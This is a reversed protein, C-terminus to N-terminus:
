RRGRVNEWGHRVADKFNEWAGGRNKTEWERRVDPEIASWDRGGFRADSAVTSGYEYAPAYEEFSRGTSGYNTRYHTRYRERPDSESGTLRGGGVKDVDVETRRVTDTVTESRDNVEKGVRVEEVVRAQKAVVAEEASERVEISGEKFAALDAETAPRDVPRREVRAHEERLRVEQKVPKETVRTNVRVGGRDVQRKRREAGGGGRAARARRRRHRFVAKCKRRLGDLRFAEVGGRAQGRGRCQPQADGRRRTGRHQGRGACRSSREAAACSEAYYHADEEPVGVHTLGGILGGAVAGAGAGALAAAIPGAAIIPGIGPIALGALGAALGAAGGIAGGVVAGKGAGSATRGADGATTDSRTYRGDTDNAVISIEDRPVGINVLEEVVGHAESYNDFSGVVTKAM